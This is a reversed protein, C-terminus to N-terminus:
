RKFACCRETAYLSSSFFFFVHMNVEISFPIKFYESRRSTWSTLSSFFVNRRKKNERREIATLYVFVGTCQTKIKRRKKGHTWKLFVIKIRKTLKNSVCNLIHPPDTCDSQHHFYSLTSFNRVCTSWVLFYFLFFNFLLLLLFNIWTLYKCNYLTNFIKIILDAFAIFSLLSPMCSSASRKLCKM